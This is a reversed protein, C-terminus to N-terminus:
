LHTAKEQLYNVHSRTSQNPLTLIPAEKIPDEGDIHYCIRPLAYCDIDDSDYELGNVSLIKLFTRLSPVDTGATASLIASRPVERSILHELELQFSAAANQIGFPLDLLYYWFRDPRSLVV